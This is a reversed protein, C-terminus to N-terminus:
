QMLYVCNILEFIKLLTNLISVCLAMSHTQCEYFSIRNEKLINSVGFLSIILWIIVNTFFHTVFLVSIYMHMQPSSYRAVYIAVVSTVLSVFLLRFIYMEVLNYNKKYINLRLIIPIIVSIMLVVYYIINNDVHKANKIIKGCLAGLLLFIFSNTTFKIANNTTQIFQCILSGLCFSCMVFFLENIYYHTYKTFNYYILYISSGFVFLVFLYVIQFFIILIHKKRNFVNLLFIKEIENM